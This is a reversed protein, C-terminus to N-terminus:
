LDVERQRELPLPIFSNAVVAWSNTQLGKLVKQHSINSKVNEM